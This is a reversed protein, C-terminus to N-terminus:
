GYTRQLRTRKAQVRWSEPADRSAVEHLEGTFPDRVALYGYNSSWAITLPYRAVPPTTVPEFAQPHSSSCWRETSGDHLTVLRVRETCDDWKCGAIADLVEAKRALLARALTAATAPGRVIVRDGDRALTLGSARADDLLADISVM